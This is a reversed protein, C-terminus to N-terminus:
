FLEIINSKNKNTHIIIETKNQKIVFFMFELAKLFKKVRNAIKHITITVAIARIEIQHFIEGSNIYRVSAVYTITNKETRSILIQILFKQFLYFKM